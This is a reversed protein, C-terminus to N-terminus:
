KAKVEHAGKEKMSTFDFPKQDHPAGEHCSKCTAEDPVILGAALSAEHDKMVKMSKYESGPGHCAECQVGPMSADGALAHCGLCEANGQEEAPLLEFAKAHASAEWSTYEVKHCMKCKAASINDAAGALSLAGLIMMCAAILGLKRMLFGGECTM